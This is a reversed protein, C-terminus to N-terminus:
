LKGRMVQNATPRLNQYLGGVASNPTATANMPPTNAPSRDDTKAISAPLLNQDSTGKVACITIIMMPPYRTADAGSAARFSARM